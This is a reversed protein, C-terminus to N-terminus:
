NVKVFLNQYLESIKTLASPITIHYSFRLHLLVVLSHVFETLVSGLCLLVHSYNKMCIFILSQAFVVRKVQLITISLFYTHQFLILFSNSLDNQNDM